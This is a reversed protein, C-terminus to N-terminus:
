RKAQPFAHNILQVDWLLIGFNECCQKCDYSRTRGTRELELNGAPRGRKLVWYSKHIDLTLKEAIGCYFLQAM